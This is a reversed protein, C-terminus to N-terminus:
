ERETGILAQRVTEALQASPQADAPMLAAAQRASIYGEAHYQEIRQAREASDQGGSIWWRAREGRSRADAVVAKYSGIFAMRAGVRDGDAYIPDAATKARAIENTWLVTANEDMAELAISWAADPDPHGDSTQLQGIVDAPKPPYVSRALHHQLAQQVADLSYPAMLAWWAELLEENVSRDYVAFARRLVKAFDDLQDQEV